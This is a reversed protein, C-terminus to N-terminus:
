CYCYSKQIIELDTAVDDRLDLLPLTKEISSLLAQLNSKTKFEDRTEKVDIGVISADIALSAATGGGPICSVAGSVVEMAALGPQGQCLRYIGFGLGIVAGVFPM